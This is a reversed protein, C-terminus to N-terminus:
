LNEGKSSLNHLKTALLVKLEEINSEAHKIHEIHSAINDQITEILGKEAEAYTLFVGAESWKIYDSDYENLNESEVRYYFGHYGADINKIKAPEIEYDKIIFVSDGKKFKAGEIFDKPAFPDDKKFPVNMRADLFKKIKQFFKM